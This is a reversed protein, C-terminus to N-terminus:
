YKIRLYCDNKRVLILNHLKVIMRVADSVKGLLSLSELWHLFHQQFFRHIEGDEILLAEGENIAYLACLHDIWFCCAYGIPELPDLKLGTKTSDSVPGYDNIDCLDKKLVHLARLLRLALNRHDSEARRFINLREPDMLYDKASQHVFYITDDRWTLFSGCHEILRILTEPKRFEKEPLGAASVVEKFKLPRFAFALAYLINLSFEATKKNQAQVQGMMRNYLPPLGSPFDSLIDETEWSEVKELEKCVLAV